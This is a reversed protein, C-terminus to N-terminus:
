EREPGPPEVTRRRILVEAVVRCLVAWGAGVAWGALVDTPWHVGLYIRSMGVMMALVIAWALFYTKLRRSPQVAALLIGITLYTVASLTSHGSPFSLTHVDVLQPVLDPRAREFLAKLGQSIAMGGVVSVTLLVAGGWRRVLLMYGVALATFLTLVTYGGLATIDQAMQEAWYPGIPDSLDATRFFLLIQKDFTRTENEVVEDAIVGFVWLAGFVLALLTLVRAERRLFVAAAPVHRIVRNLVAATNM